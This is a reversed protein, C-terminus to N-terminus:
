MLRAIPGYPDVIGAITSYPFRFEMIGIAHPGYREEQYYVVLEKDTLYYEQKEDLQKFNFTEQYRQKMQKKVQESLLSIYDAEPKLLDRFDYTKGSYLDIVVSRYYTTGHAAEPVYAFHQLLVSAIGNKFATVKYDGTVTTNKDEDYQLDLCILDHLVAYIAQNAKVQVQSNELGQIVPYSVNVRPSAFNQTVMGTGRWERFM